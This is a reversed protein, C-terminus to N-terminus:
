DSLFLGASGTKSYKQVVTPGVLYVPASFSPWCLLTLPSEFVLDLLGDLDLLRGDLDLLLRWLLTPLSEFVLDLLRELDLLGDVRM